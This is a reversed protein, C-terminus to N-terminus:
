AVRVVCLMALQVLGRTIVTKGPYTLQECFSDGHLEFLGQDAIRLKEMLIGVSPFAPTIFVKFLNKVIKMLVQSGHGPEGLAVETIPAVIVTVSIGAIIQSASEDMEESFAM